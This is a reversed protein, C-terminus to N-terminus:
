LSQVIADERLMTPLALGILCDFGRCDLRLFVSRCRCTEGRPLDSSTMSPVTAAATDALSRCAFRGDHDGGNGSPLDVWAHEHALRPTDSPYQYGPTASSAKQPSRDNDQTLTVLMRSFTSAAATGSKFLQLGGDSRGPLNAQSTPLRNRQQVIADTSEM